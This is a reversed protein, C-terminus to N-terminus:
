GLDEGDADTGAFVTVTLGTLIWEALTQAEQRDVGSVSSMMSPRSGRLIDRAVFLAQGRQRQEDTLMSQTTHDEATM